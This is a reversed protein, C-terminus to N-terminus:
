NSIFISLKPITYNDSHSYNIFSYGVREIIYIQEIDLSILSDIDYTKINILPYTDINDINNTYPYNPNSIPPIPPSTNYNGGEIVGLGNNNYIQINSYLGYGYISQNVSIISITKGVYNNLNILESNFYSESTNNAQLNIFPDVSIADYFSQFAYKVHPNPINQLYLYTPIEIYNLKYYYYITEKYNDLLKNLLDKNGNYILYSNFPFPFLSIIDLSNFPLLNKTTNWTNLEINTNTIMQGYNYNSNINGIRIFFNYTINSLFEAPIKSVIYGLNKYENAIIESATFVVKIVQGNQLKPKFFEISTDISAFVITNNYSYFYPTINFLNINDLIDNNPVTLEMTIFQNINSLKIVPINNIINSSKFLPAYYNTYTNAGYADVSKITDIKTIINTLNILIGKEKEKEKM